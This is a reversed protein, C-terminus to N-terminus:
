AYYLAAYEAENNTDMEHILENARFRYQREGKKYYIVVGLGASLSGKQFGGDFYLEIEQPEEDLKKNLKKLEKLSWSQDMEDTFVINLANGSTELQEGVQLTFPGDLWDSYVPLQLGKKLKMEWSIKYKM